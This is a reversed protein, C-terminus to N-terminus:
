RRVEKSLDTPYDFVSIGLQGLYEMFAEKTLGAMEAAQGMSLQHVEWLKAAIFRRAEDASLESPLELVLTAM